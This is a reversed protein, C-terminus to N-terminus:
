RGGGPGEKPTQTRSGEDPASSRQQAARYAELLDSGLVMAEHVSRRASSVAEKLSEPGELADAHRNLEEANAEFRELLARFAASAQAEQARQAENTAGGRAQAGQPGQPRAGGLGLRDIGDHTSM